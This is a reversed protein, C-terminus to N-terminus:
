RVASSFALDLGIVRLRRPSERSQCSSGCSVLTRVLLDNLAPLLSHLCSFWGGAAFPLGTLAFVMRAVLAVRVPRAALRRVLRGHLARGCFSGCDFAFGTRGTFATMAGGSGTSYLSTALRSTPLQPVCEWRALCANQTTREAGLRMADRTRHAAELFTRRACHLRKRLTSSYRLSIARESFFPGNQRRCRGRFLPLRFVCLSFFTTFVQDRREV